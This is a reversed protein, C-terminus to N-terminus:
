TKLDLGNEKDKKDSNAPNSLSTQDTPMFTMNLNLKFQTPRFNFLLPMRAQPQYQMNFLAMQQQFNTNFGIPGFM